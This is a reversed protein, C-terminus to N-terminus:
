GRWCWLHATDPGLVAETACVAGAEVSRIQSGAPRSIARSRRSPPAAPNPHAPRERVSGCSHSLVESAREHESPACSSGARASSSSDATETQDDTRSPHTGDAPHLITPAVTCAPRHLPSRRPLVFPGRWFPVDIAPRTSSPTARSAVQCCCCCCCYCCCCCCCTRVTIHM